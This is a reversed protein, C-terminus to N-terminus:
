QGEERKLKLESPNAEEWSRLLHKYHSPSPLLVSTPLFLWMTSFNLRKKQQYHLGKFQSPFSPPSHSPSPSHPALTIGPQTHKSCGPVAQVCVWTRSKHLAAVEATLMNHLSLLSLLLLCCVPFLHTSRSSFVSFNCLTNPPKGQNNNEETLTNPLNFVM